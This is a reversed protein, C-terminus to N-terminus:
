VALADATYRAKPPCQPTTVLVPMSCHRVVDKPVNELYLRFWGPDSSGVIVLDAGLERAAGGIVQGITIDSFPLMRIQAEGQCHAEDLARSSREAVMRGEVQYAELTAAFDGKAPRSLHPAPNVVHLATIRAGCELAIEIASRLTTLDAKLGVAVLIHKYM